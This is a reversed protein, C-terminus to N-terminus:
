FPVRGRKDAKNWNIMSQLGIKHLQIILAVPMTTLDGVLFYRGYGSYVKQKEKNGKM